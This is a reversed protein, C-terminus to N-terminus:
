PLVIHGNREAVPEPRTRDGVGIIFGLERFKVREALQGLDGPLVVDLHNDFPRAVDRHVEDLLVDVALHGHAAFRGEVGEARERGIDGGAIVV